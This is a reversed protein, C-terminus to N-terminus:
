YNINFLITLYSCIMRQQFHGYAMTACYCFSVSYISQWISAVENHIVFIRQSSSQLMDPYCLYYKCRPRHQRYSVQVRPVWGCLQQLCCIPNTEQSCNKLAKCYAWRNELQVQTSRFILCVHKNANLIDRFRNKTKLEIRLCHKM